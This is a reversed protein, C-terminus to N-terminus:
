RGTTRANQKTRRSVQKTGAWQLHCGPPKPNRNKPQGEPRRADFENGRPTDLVRTELFRQAFSGGTQVQVYHVIARLM